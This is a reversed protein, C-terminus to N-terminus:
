NESPPLTIEIINSTKGEGIAVLREADVFALGEGRKQDLDLRCSPWSPMQDLPGDGIQWVRLQETTRLALLRGAPSIAGATVEVGEWITGVRLLVEPDGDAEDDSLAEEDLVEDDLAPGATVYLEADEGKTVVAAQGMRPDIMLAEADHPGDPYTWEVTTTLEVNEPPRTLDPEVVAHALVSPRRQGNDGIDAIVLLGGGTISLDEWDINDIGAVPWAGLVEGSVTVAHLEAPNGRDNHTWLVDPESRSVALGSAEAPGSGDLQGIERVTAGDCLAEITAAGTDACAGTLVICSVAPVIRGWM